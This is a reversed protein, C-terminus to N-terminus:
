KWGNELIDLVKSELNSNYYEFENELVYELIDIKYEYFEERIFDGAENKFLKIKRRYGWFSNVHSFSLTGYEKHTNKLYGHCRAHEFEFLEPENKIINFVYKTIRENKNNYVELSEIFNSIPDYKYVNVNQTEFVVEQAEHEAFISYSYLERKAKKEDGFLLPIKYTTKRRINSNYFLM